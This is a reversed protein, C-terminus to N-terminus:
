ILMLEPTELAKVLESLFAAAVAGDIVRHDAALTMMMM